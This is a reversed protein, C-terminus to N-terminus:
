NLLKHSLSYLSEKEVDSAKARGLKDVKVVIFRNENLLRNALKVVKIGINKSSFVKLTYIPFFIDILGYRVSKKKIM